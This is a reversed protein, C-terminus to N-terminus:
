VPARFRRWAAAVYAAAEKWTTALVDWFGWASLAALPLVLYPNTLALALGSMLSQLVFGRGMRAPGDASSVGPKYLAAYIAAAVGTISLAMTAAAVPLAVPALTLIVGLGLAAVVAPFASMIRDAPTSAPDTFKGQFASHGLAAITLASPLPKLGIGAFGTFAGMALDLLVFTGAGALIGYRLVSSLAEGFSPAKGEKKHAAILGYVAGAAAALATVLPHYSAVLSVSALAPAAAAAVPAAMALAPLALVLAAVAVIAGIRASGRSAARSPSPLSRSQRVTSAGKALITPSVASVGAKTAIQSPGDSLTRRRTMFDFLGSWRSGSAEVSAPASAEPKQTEIVIGLAPIKEPASAELTGVAPGQTEIVVGAGAQPMSAELTGATPVVTPVVSIRGLETSLGTPMTAAAGPIKVAADIGVVTVRAPAKLVFSDAAAAYSALGPSTLLLALALTSRLLSTTKNM